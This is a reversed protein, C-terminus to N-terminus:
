DSGLAQALQSALYRVLPEEVINGHRGPIIRLDIGGAPLDGWGVDRPGPRFLSFSRARILTLRGQYPRPNYRRFLEMNIEETGWEEPNLMGLEPGDFLAALRRPVTGVRKDLGVCRRLRDLVRGLMRDPRTRLLDDLVWYPLNALFGALWRGPQRAFPPLDWCPGADIVALLGVEKGRASLQRAM